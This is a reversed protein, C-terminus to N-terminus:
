FEKLVLRFLRRIVIKRLMFPMMALKGVGQFMFCFFDANKWEEGNSKLKTTTSSTRYRSSYILMFIM